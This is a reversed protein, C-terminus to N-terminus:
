WAGHSHGIARNLIKQGHRRMCFSLGPYVGTRYLNEVSEWIADVDQRTMGALAPDAEDSPDYTTLPTLDKPVLITRLIKSTVADFLKM